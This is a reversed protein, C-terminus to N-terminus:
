SRVSRPSLGPRLPIEPLSEPSTACSSRGAAPPAVRTCGSPSHSASATPCVSPARGPLASPSGTSGPASRQPPNGPNNTHTGVPANPAGPTPPSVHNNAPRTDLPTRRPDSLSSRNSEGVRLKQRAYAGPDHVSRNQLQDPHPQFRRYHLPTLPLASAPVPAPWLLPRWLAPYARRQQGVRIQGPDVSQKVTRLPRSSLGIDLQYTVGIIKHRQRLLHSRLRDLKDLRPQFALELQLDVPFLRPYHIQPLLSRTQVKQSVCKSPIAVSFAATAFIQIDKRRLFGDLPFPLLQMLHRTRTLAKLRDRPQHLLQIPVQSPPRVVETEPIGGAHKALKIPVQCSAQDLMQLPAALPRVARRLRRAPVRVQPPQPKAM